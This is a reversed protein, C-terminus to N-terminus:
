LFGTLYLCLLKMQEELYPQLGMNKQMSEDAFRIGMNDGFTGLLCGRSLSYFILNSKQIAFFLIEVLLYVFEV